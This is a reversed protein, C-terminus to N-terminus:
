EHTGHHPHIDSLIHLYDPALTEIAEHTCFGQSYLLHNGALTNGHMGAQWSIITRRPSERAQPLVGGPTSSDFYFIDTREQSHQLVIMSPLAGAPLHVGYRFLIESTLKGGFVAAVKPRVLVRLCCLCWPWPWLFPRALLAEQAKRYHACDANHLVLPPPPVQTPCHRSPRRLRPKGLLWIFTSVFLPKLWVVSRM